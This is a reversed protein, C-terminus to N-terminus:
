FAVQPEDQGGAAQYADIAAQIASTNLTTADPVPGFSTIDVEARAPAPPQAAAPLPLFPTALAAAFRRRSATTQYM